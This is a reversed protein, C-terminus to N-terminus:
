WTWDQQLENNLVAGQPWHGRKLEIICTAAEIGMKESSLTDEGGIHPSLVVNDLQLLPNDAAPPEQEVVDLGAAHLRGSRLAEILDVEAVIPGRATNILAAGPKMRAFVNRDFMGETEQNLPCHISLYDSEGLLRDFDVLEIGQEEVFQRDPQPECALVRMSLGLARIAVARGIRGLGFLGLTSGRVPRTMRREWGDRARRDNVVISKAIALLLAIAQEAVADFNATPTITVPIGCVTAAALDVRDYGVGARAIVRLRPLAALVKETFHEGGAIIAECVSLQRVTEDESCLGRAFGPDDPYEIEFGAERLLEVFSTQKHLMEEPTILVVPM